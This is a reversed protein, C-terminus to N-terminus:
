LIRVYCRTEVSRMLIDLTTSGGDATNGTVSATGSNGTNGAGDNGTAGQGSGTYGQINTWPSGLSGFVKIPGAGGATYSVDALNFMTISSGSSNYTQFTSVGSSWKVSQFRLTGYGHTHNPTSHLHSPGALTGAAHKHETDAEHGVNGVVILSVTGAGTTFTNAAAAVVTMSTANTISDVVMIETTAGETVLIQDGSNLETDFATLTGTVAKLTATIAITGTLATNATDISADGEASTTYGILVRGTVDKTVVGHLLSTASAVTTGDCPWYNTGASPLALTGNFDDFLLYSGIPFIRDIYDSTVLQGSADEYTFTRTATLAASSIVVANGDSNVTFTDSSTGDIPQTGDIINTIYQNITTSESQSGDNNYEYDGGFTDIGVQRLNLNLTNLLDETKERWNDLDEEYLVRANKYSKPLIADILGM